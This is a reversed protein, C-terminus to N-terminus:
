QGGQANLEAQITTVKTHQEDRLNTLTDKSIVGNNNAIAKNLQDEATQSFKLQAELADHQGTAALNAAQAPHVASYWVGGGFGLAAGIILIILKAM